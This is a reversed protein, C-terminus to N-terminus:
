RYNSAKNDKDEQLIIRPKEMVVTANDPIDIAVICGAGIKVNNGIRVPGVVKCGAGFLM